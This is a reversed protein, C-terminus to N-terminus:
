KAGSAVWCVQTPKQTLRDYCFSFMFQGKRAIIHGNVAFDELFKYM